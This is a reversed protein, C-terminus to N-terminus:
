KIGNTVVEYSNIIENKKSERLFSIIDDLPLGDCCCINIDESSKALVVGIDNIKIGWSISQFDIKTCLLIFSHMVNKNIIYDYEKVFKSRLGTGKSRYNSLDNLLEGPLKGWITIILVDSKTSLFNITEKFFNFEKNLSSVIVCGSNMQEM